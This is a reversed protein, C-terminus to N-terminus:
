QTQKHNSTDHQIILSLDVSENFFHMLVFSFDTFHKRSRHCVCVIFLLIHKQILKYEISTHTHSLSLSLSFSNNM